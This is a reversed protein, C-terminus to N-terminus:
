PNSKKEGKYHLGTASVHQNDALGKDARKGGDTAADKVPKNKGGKNDKTNQHM